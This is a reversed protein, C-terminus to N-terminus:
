SLPEHTYWSFELSEHSIGCYKVWFCQMVPMDDKMLIAWSYVHLHVHLCLITEQSKFHRHFSFYNCSIQCAKRFFYYHCKGEQFIKKRKLSISKKRNHLNPFHHRWLNHLLFQLISFLSYRQFYQLLTKEFKAGSINQFFMKFFNFRILRLGLHDEVEIRTLSLLM